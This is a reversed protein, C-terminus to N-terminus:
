PGSGSGEPRWVEFSMFTSGWIEEDALHIIKITHESKDLDDAYFLISDNIMWWISANFATTGDGPPLMVKGDLEVGYIWHGYIVPSHIAVAHANFFKMSASARYERTKVWTGKRISIADWEGTYQIESSYSPYVTSELKKPSCARDPSSHATYM